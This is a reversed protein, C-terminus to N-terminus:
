TAADPFRTAKLQQIIMAEPMCLSLCRHWVCRCFQRKYVDLHTYSVANDMIDDHILTFNHFLEVALASPIANVVSDSFLNCAALVLAPRIRKGGSDLTHTIPTYLLVPSEPLKLGKIEADILEILEKLSYM